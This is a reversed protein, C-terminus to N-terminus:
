RSRKAQHTPECADDAAGFTEGVAYQTSAAITTEFAALFMNLLLAVGDSVKDHVVSAQASSGTTSVASRDRVM